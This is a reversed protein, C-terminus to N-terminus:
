ILMSIKDTNATFVIWSTIKIDINLSIIKNPTLLCAWMGAQSLAHADLEEVLQPKKFRPFTEKFSVLAAAAPGVRRAAAADGRLGALREVRV